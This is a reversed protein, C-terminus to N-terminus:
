KIADEVPDDDKSGTFVEKGKKAVRKTEGWAILLSAIFYIGYNITDNYQMILPEVDGTFFDSIRYGRSELLTTVAIIAFGAWQSNSLRQKGKQYADIIVDETIRTGPIGPRGAVPKFKKPSDDM